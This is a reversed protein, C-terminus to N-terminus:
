TSSLVIFDRDYPIEYLENNQNHTLTVLNQMKMM